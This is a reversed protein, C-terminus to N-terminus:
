KTQRRFNRPVKMITSEGAIPELVEYIVSFHWRKNLGFILLTLVLKTTSIRYTDFVRFSFAPTEPSVSTHYFARHTRSGRNYGRLRQSSSRGGQSHLHTKRCVREGWRSVHDSKFFPYYELALKANSSVEYLIGLALQASGSGNYGWNFGDPSHDAIELSPVLPLLETCGNQEVEVIRDNGTKKGRFIRDM